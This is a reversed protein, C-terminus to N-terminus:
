IIQIVNNTHIGKKKVIDFSTNLGGKLQNKNEKAKKSLKKKKKKKKKSILNRRIWKPNSNVVKVQGSWIYKHSDHVIKSKAALKQKKLTTYIFTPLPISEKFYINQDFIM